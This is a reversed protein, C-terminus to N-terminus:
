LRSKSLIYSVTGLPVGLLRSLRPAGYGTELHKRWVIGWVVENRKRGLPLPAPKLGVAPLKRRVRRKELCEECRSYVLPFRVSRTCSICLGKKRRINRYYTSRSSM